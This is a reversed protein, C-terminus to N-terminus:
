SAAESGPRIIRPTKLPQFYYAQDDHRRIVWDEPVEDSCYDM